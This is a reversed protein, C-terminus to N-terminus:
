DIDPQKTTTSRPAVTVSDISRQTTKPRQTIPISHALYKKHLSAPEVITETQSVTPPAM